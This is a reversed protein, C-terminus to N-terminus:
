SNENAADKRQQAHQLSLCQAQASQPTPQTCTLEVSLLNRLTHHMGPAHTGLAKKLDAKRDDGPSM